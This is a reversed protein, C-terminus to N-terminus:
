NALRKHMWKILAAAGLQLAIFCLIALLAWEVAIWGFLDPAKMMTSMLSEQYYFFWQHGDPFLLEHLAYFVKVPGILVVVIAVLLMFLLTSILQVKISPIKKQTKIYYVLLGLWVILAVTAVVMGQDILNAVDQLHVVEPERLLTQPSHGPVSYSLEKLGEGGSHIAQNIGAFLEVRQDRSTLHFGDRYQNSVGYEDITAGIGAYDHWIGYSFNLQALLLWSVAFAVLLGSLAFPVAKQAERISFVGAGKPSPPVTRSSKRPKM